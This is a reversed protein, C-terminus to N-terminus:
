WRCYKSWHTKKKLLRTNKNQIIINTNFSKTFNKKKGYHYKFCLLGYTAIWDLPVQLHLLPWHHRFRVQSKHNVSRPLSVKTLHSDFCSWSLSAYPFLMSSSIKVKRGEGRKKKNESVNGLKEYILCDCIFNSLDNLQTKLYLCAVESERLTEAKVEYELFFSVKEKHLWRFM